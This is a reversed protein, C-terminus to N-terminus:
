KVVFKMGNVVYVGSKLGRVADNIGMNRKLLQGNTTYVDVKQNNAKLNNIATAEDFSKVTEYQELPATDYM